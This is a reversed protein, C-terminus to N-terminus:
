SILMVAEDKYPLEPVKFIQSDTNTYASSQTSEVSGESKGQPKYQERKSRIVSFIPKIVLTENLTNLKNTTTNLTQIGEHVKVIANQKQRTLKLLLSCYDDKLSQQDELVLKENIWEKNSFNEFRSLEDGLGIISAINYPKPTPTRLRDFTSENPDESLNWSNLDDKYNNKAECLGENNIIGISYLQRERLISQKLIIELDDLEHDPGNVINLKVEENLQTKEINESNKNNKHVILHLSVKKTTPHEKREKRQQRKFEAKEQRQIMGLYYQLRKEERSIKGRMASLSVEARQGGNAYTNYDFDSMTQSSM